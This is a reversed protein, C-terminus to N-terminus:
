KKYQYEHFQLMFSDLQSRCEELRKAEQVLEDYTVSYNAGRKGGIEIGAASIQGQEDEVFSLNLSNHAILNRTKKLLQIQSILLNLKEEDEKVVLVESLMVDKFIEIKENIKEAFWNSQVFTGQLHFRVVHYLSDEISAFDIIFKGIVPIWKQEAYIINVNDNM